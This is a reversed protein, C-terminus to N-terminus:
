SYSSVASPPLSCFGFASWSALEEEKPTLRNMVKKQVRQFFRRAERGLAGGSEVVFPLVVHAVHGYVGHKFSETDAAVVLPTLAAAPLAAGEVISPCAVDVILHAGSEHGHIDRHM